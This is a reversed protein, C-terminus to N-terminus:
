KFVCMHSRNISCIQIGAPYRHPIAVQLLERAQNLSLIRFMDISDVVKLLEIAESHIHPTVNLVLSNSVGEPAIKLGQQPYIHPISSFFFITFFSPYKKKLSFYQFLNLIYFFTEMTTFFKFLNQPFINKLSHLNHPIM